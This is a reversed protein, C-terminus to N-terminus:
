RVVLSKTQLAAGQEELVITYTGAALGRSDLVLQQEQSSVVLQELVRGAIDQVRIRCHRPVEVLAM